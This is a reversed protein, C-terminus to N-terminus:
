LTPIPKAGESASRNAAQDLERYIEENRIIAQVYERTETFPISEVFEDIGHYNGISQWDTVRYDGANYAAFAYEPQGGFKDLMQRLYRTGLRININPDLLQSAELHRTGEEKAMSKGVSPLLQMLGYASKNSIANPNFETEQRILSAVMYPDLGNRTAEAKIQAWYSQPFLIRWYTMPIASIPASTYFPIARKMLRMAHFNEGYSVYIEAEAFAGWEDSGDAARIEPAIYENLGANALLKAKVVHPDDEPVDDTLEPITEPNMNALSPVNAPAINGLKALQQRAQSAYYFHPYVRAITTFYTAAMQPQNEQDAYIRGRWYLAGPIEKGGPYQSIQEEFLRAAESYQGLRYNLWATRWHSSPAYTHKPFRKALEGYYELAQRFDKRLLYMNGSSYLAEALWPSQPSKTEMQAVISKQTDGDDKDRALEMYLYMRRAGAEDPTDLLHDLQDKNLRKLKYDCSAAAVLLANKVNPDSESPDAALSRFDEVADSYRGAAYLADAHTRRETVSLPAAAPNTALQAKAVQAEVSLPFNLYVHRFLKAAQDTQGSLQDAKAQALEFDAHNAIPEGQHNKLTLLAAQPDGEQLFLNAELVPTSNVFISDPHRKEFGNLLLEADPLKGAQLDAQAALYEAYDDLSKGLQGARQFSSVAQPFNHDLLYAHGMAIYAASGAEGAHSRAYNAVGAYAAPTRNQALQQAMPRLQSSAVFAQKLKHSKVLQKRTLPKRLSKRRHRSRATTKHVAGAKRSKAAVTAHGHKKHAAPAAGWAAPISGSTALCVAVLLSLAFMKRLSGLAFRKM